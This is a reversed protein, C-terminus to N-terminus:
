SCGEEQSGHVERPVYRGPRDDNYHQALVKEVDDLSAVRILGQRVAEHDPHSASYKICFKRMMIASRKEGYTQQCLRYHERIVEAQQRLSPPTPLPLGNWLAHVQQFIWPNGIAGRAITVGDVGTQRIMRVCDDASFLDGSGFILRQPGVHRKVEALFDWRSPGVYRQKVTRGHVTIAAVGLAFAGDLIRYFHDRSETTDDMGRRMKLTVPRDPPVVDRTRAVIELAVDPQSLHFGGRCRGLVKKVPCGFNIDIVDFGAEAMKIAGAAFQEPESGMLQGGVPHEEDAIELFHRTRQRDTLTVLFQDLMVECLTYSAGHRRALVRMPLDSYGSLAAQFFPSAIECNGIKLAAGTKHVHGRKPVSENHCSKGDDVGASAVIESPADTPGHHDQDHQAQADKMNAGM